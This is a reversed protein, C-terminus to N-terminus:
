KLFVGAIKEGGSSNVGSFIASTFKCLAFKIGLGEQFVYQRLHFLKNKTQFREVLRKNLAKDLLKSLYYHFLGVIELRM